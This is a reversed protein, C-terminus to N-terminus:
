FEFKLALQIQRSPVSTKTIRGGSEAVRDGNNEFVSGNLGAFIPHNPFNFFEARFQLNKGEGVAFAKFVSLDLKVPKTMSLTNKGVNGFYGAPVREFQTEDFWHNLDGIVPNNNGGPKLNPRVSCRCYSNTNYGAGSLTLPLGSRTSFVGNVQWGGFIMNAIGGMNTGFYRGQGVPLEYTFNASFNHPADQDARGKDFGKFNWQNSSQFGGGGGGGTSPQEAGKLGIGATSLNKSWTHSASFEFGQSFRKQVRLQLANYWSDGINAHTRTSDLFTNISPAGQRTFERGQPDISLAPQVQNIIAVLNLGRSGIYGVKAIWSQGLQREFGLNWQMGYPYKYDHNILIPARSAGAPDVGALPKPWRKIDRLTVRDAFPPYFVALQFLYELPMEKFLGFGGRVSTNQNPSYAFGFRPALGALADRLEFLPEKGLQTYAKDRLPDKFTAAKGNVEVPPTVKEWRLGLNFTLNPLLQLDDQIYWAAYTQRWGRYSDPAQTVGTTTMSLGRCSSAPGVCYPSLGATLFNKLPASWSTNGHGWVTVMENEQFRRVDLGFDMSHRGKTVRVSDYYSFTNDVFKLPDDLDAGNTTNGPGNHGGPISVGPIGWPGSWRVGPIVELQPALNPYDDANVRKTEEGDICMCQQNNNRAFGFRAINLVSPTVIRTWEMTLFRYSGWDNTSTHLNKSVDLFQADQMEKSSSDLVMRGFISDNDSLRQDIRFMYYNERGPQTRTGRFEQLGDNLYLGNGRPIINIIPQMDPNIGLPLSEQIIREAKTCLIKRKGTAPDTPCGTIQGIRTEDSLVNSNDTSGFNQRLGEYSFFFFTNDRAIPGGITGGFQNRKFAPIPENPLDFFNKADLKENRLFEFLSGHIENTGSRTVANIIGGMARGYQAGYNSQLVTFERITDVGLTQNMVSVPAVNSYPSVIDTGDLLYLSQQPRAGNIAIRGGGQFVGSPMGLDTVAGPQIATLDTFSRGNLPLERMQTESVLDAVAANTTELLPAEGTVTIREAVAGVQLTFDVVAQRGVTMEIGSRVVSQFGAAEATVEFMGLGLQQATYRGQANTTITRSIGTETNRLTVTAGPIVAGTSDSVTGSITGTTVQAFVMSCLFFVGIVVRALLVLGKM